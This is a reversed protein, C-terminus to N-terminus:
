KRLFKWTVRAQERGEQKPHFITECVLTNGGDELYRKSEFNGGGYKEVGRLWSRHVTGNSDWWAEAQVTEDDATRIAIHEPQYEESEADAGSSILRREWVNIGSKGRILLERGEKTQEIIETTLGILGVAVVRVLKPQGLLKLYDDYDSKFQETDILQWEGTIDIAATAWRSGAKPRVSFTPRVSFAKQDVVSLWKEEQKKPGSDIKVDGTTPELTDQTNAIKQMEKEVDTASVVAANSENVESISSAASVSSDYALDNENIYGMKNADVKESDSDLNNSFAEADIPDKKDLLSTGSEELSNSFFLRM